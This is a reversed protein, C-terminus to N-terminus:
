ANFKGDGSRKKQVNGGAYVALRSERESGGCFPTKMEEAEAPGHTQYGTPEIEVEHQVM